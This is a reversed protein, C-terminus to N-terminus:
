LRKVLPLNLYEKSELFDQGNQFGEEVIELVNKTERHALILVRHYMKVMFQYYGICIKMWCKELFSNSQTYLFRHWFVYHNFAGAYIPTTDTAVTSTHADNHVYKADSVVCINYGCVILKYFMIRDEFSAYGSQEAWIEDEFHIDKMVQTNILFNTWPLSETDYIKQRTINIDRNYSWGGTRLIRVYTNGKGHMMICAGGLMSALRHKNTNPPFFELLPGAACSYKGNILVMALKEVYDPSFEIDDDSFLIYDSQIYKIAELRQTIMGKKCFVFEEIGIQCEPINYGEPLVVVIKEPPITQHIISYLLKKYKEGATGLTRIAVSYSFCM